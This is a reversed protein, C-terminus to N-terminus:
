IIIELHIIVLVKLQNQYPLIQYLTINKTYSLSVGGCECSWMPGSYSTGSVTIHSDCPWYQCVVVGSRSFHVTSWNSSTGAVKLTIAANVNENLLVSFLFTTIVFSFILLTFVSFLSYIFQIQRYFVNVFNYQIFLITSLNYKCLFICIEVFARNIILQEFSM